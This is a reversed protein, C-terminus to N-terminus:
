SYLTWSFSQIVEIEAQIFHKALVGTECKSRGAVQTGAEMVSLLGVM